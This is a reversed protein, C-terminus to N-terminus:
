CSCGGSNGGTGTPSTKQGSGGVQIGSSIKTPDLEGSEIKTLITRACKLFSEEVNDGTLASTEMFSLSNEQAFRTAEMFSVERQEDLDCKNGTLVIAIDASALSKADVLWSALQNYSERSGGRGGADAGIGLAGNGPQRM